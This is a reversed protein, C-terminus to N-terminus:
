KLSPLLATIEPARTRCEFPILHHFSHLRDSACRFELRIKRKKLNTKKQRSKVAHKRGSVTTATATAAAKVNVAQAAEGGSHRYM